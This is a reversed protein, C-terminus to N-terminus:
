SLIGGKKKAYGNYVIELGDKLNTKHKWGLSNIKTSDVIKRPTGDPKTEDFLIRGNYGIIESILAVLEEISIEIGTGVNIPESHSYNKMLFVCADALDEAFLFERLPKGTGWVVVEKENNIKAKHIKHILGPIVHSNEPHYNDNIGYLNTPMISIFDCGYQARYSSCLKLGSIKAIAYPENTPELIGTLLFEEKIPQPAFKPYICSSGLFLLKKVSSLYASHIVNTQIMLNEYLFDAKYNNNALIGGVKAAALFVIEPKEQSFFHTVMEQNTLDLEERTRVVINKYGSNLLARCIASGVMGKHGAVFIKSNTEM